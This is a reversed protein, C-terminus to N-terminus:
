VQFPYDQITCDNELTQFMSNCFIYCNWAQWALGHFFWVHSQWTKKMVSYKTKPLYRSNFNNAWFFNLVQFVLDQISCDNDLSPSMSNCIHWTKFLFSDSSHHSGLSSFLDVQIWTKSSWTMFSILRPFPRMHFIKLGFPTLVQSALDQINCDNDHSPPMSNCCHLPELSTMGLRSLVTYSKLGTAALDQCDHETTNMDQFVLHLFVYNKTPDSTSIFVGFLIWSKATVLRSYHLWQSSKPCPTACFSVNWFKTHWTKFCTYIFIHINLLSHHSGQSLFLDLQIWTKFSWTM